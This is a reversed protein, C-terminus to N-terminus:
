IRKANEHHNIYEHNRNKLINLTEEIQFKQNICQLHLAYQSPQM